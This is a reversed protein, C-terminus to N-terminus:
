EGTTQPKFKEWLATANRASNVGTMLRSGAPSNNFAKMLLMTGIKM